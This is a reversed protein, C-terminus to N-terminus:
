REGSTAVLFPETTPQASGASPEDTVAIAALGDKPLVYSARVIARGAADPSFTGASIKATPTVLWLQYTRGSKPARLHHGVFTWAGHQQDWFMRGSPLRIDSSGVSMVAVQDGTLNTILRERDTLVARLSDLAVARAGREAAATQMVSRLEDREGRVQMLAGVSVVAIVSAAIALWRSGSMRGKAISRASGIPRVASSSSASTPSSALAHADMGSAVSEAGRDAVARALLRARLRGRQAPSMPVPAVASALYATTQQLLALESKCAECGAVHALVAGREFADLADLALGELEETAQEHTMGDSM